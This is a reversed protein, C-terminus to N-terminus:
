SLVGPSRNLLCKFFLGTEDMNYVCDSDYKAILDRVEQIKEEVNEAPASGAEGHLKKSIWGQEKAFKKAWSVSAKFAKDPDKEGTELDMGTWKVLEFETLFPKEKHM